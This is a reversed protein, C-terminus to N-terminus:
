EAKAMYVSWVYLVPVILGLLNTAQFTGVMIMSVISIVIMLVGAVMCVMFSKRMLGSIGAVLEIVAGLTGVIIAGTTLQAALEPSSKVLFVSAVTGIVGFAGGIITLISMVKLFTKKELM